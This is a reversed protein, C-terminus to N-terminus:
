SSNHIPLNLDSWCSRQNALTSLTLKLFDVAATPEETVRNDKGIRIDYM